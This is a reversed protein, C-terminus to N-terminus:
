REDKHFPDQGEELRRETSEEASEKPSEEIANGEPSEKVVEEAHEEIEAIGEIQELEKEEERISISLPIEFVDPHLKAAKEPSTLLTGEVPENIKLGQRKRYVYYGLIGIIFWVTGFIRAVEHLSLVLIWVILNIAFGLAALLPQEM